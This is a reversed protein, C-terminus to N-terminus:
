DDVTVPRHRNIQAFRLFYGDLDLVGFQTREDMRDTRWYWRTHLELFPKHGASTVREHLDTVNDVLFQFNVGRGYPAELPATEWPGHRAALMLQSGQLAIYAHAQNRRQQVVEFGLCEVYFALSQAFDRCFLEPVLPNIVFM